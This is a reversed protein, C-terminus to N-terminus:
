RSAFPQEAAWTAKRGHRGGHWRVIQEVNALGVGIGEFENVTHLRQFVTFLKEAYAMDFGAGNDRVFWVPHGERTTQGFEIHAQARKRTFKWANGILTELVIALLRADAVAKTTAPLTM